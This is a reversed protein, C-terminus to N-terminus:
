KKHLGPCGDGRRWALDLQRGTRGAAIVGSSSLAACDMRWSRGCVGERAVGMHRAAMVPPAVRDQRASGDMGARRRNVAGACTSVGFDEGVAGAFRGDTRGGGAFFTVM